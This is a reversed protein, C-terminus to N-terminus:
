IKSRRWVNLIETAKEPGFLKVIETKVGEMWNEAAAAFIAEEDLSNDFAHLHSAFSRM